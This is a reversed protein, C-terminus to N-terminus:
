KNNKPGETRLVELIFDKKTLYSALIARDLEPQILINAMHPTIEGAAARKLTNAKFAIFKLVEPNTKRPNM